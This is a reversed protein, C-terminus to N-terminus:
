MSAVVQCASCRKATRPSRARAITWDYLDLVHQRQLAAAEEAQAAAAAEREARRAKSKEFV